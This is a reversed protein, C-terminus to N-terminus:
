IEFIRDKYAPFDEEVRKKYGTAVVVRSIQAPEFKMNGYKRWEREMYFNRSHNYPLESNFPKVFALFYKLLMDYVASVAAENSSPKEGLRRGEPYAEEQKEVVQENFGKVIAEIDRLLTLGHSSRWDDSRMPIYTVPRAGYKILLQSPLAVGFKGYKSVHISLAKFPIDAYCTVSPVILEETELRNDWTITHSVEGWTGDHPPHSICNTELVKGLKEYNINDDAPSSHGVFHFLEDSVYLNRM